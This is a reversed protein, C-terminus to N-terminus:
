DGQARLNESMRALYVSTNLPIFICKFVINTVPVAVLEEECVDVAFLCRSLVESCAPFNDNNPVIPKVVALTNDKVSLYFQVQGYM